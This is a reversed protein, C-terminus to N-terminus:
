EGESRARPPAAETPERVLTRTLTEVFSARGRSAVPAPLESSAIEGLKTFGGEGVGIVFLQAGVQVLYISRRGDLPLHGRLEMPGTPRGVGLRRAGWLVLFAVVCVGLLTALTEILYGTYSSV